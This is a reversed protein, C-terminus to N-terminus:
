LLTMSTPCSDILERMGEYGPQLLHPVQIRRPDNYDSSETAYGDGSDGAEDAGSESNVALAVLCSRLPIM